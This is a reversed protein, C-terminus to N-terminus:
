NENIIMIAIAIIGFIIFASAISWEILGMIAFWVGGLIGMLGAFGLARPTGIRATAMYLITCFALLAFVWFLGGTVDYAWQAMCSMLGDNCTKLLQAPLTFNGVAM